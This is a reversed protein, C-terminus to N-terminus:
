ITEVLCCYLALFLFSHRKQSFSLFFIIVFLQHSQYNWEIQIYQVFVLMVIVARHVYIDVEVDNLSQIKSSLHTCMGVTREVETVRICKSSAKCM